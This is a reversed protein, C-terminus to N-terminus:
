GWIIARTQSKGQFVNKEGTTERTGTSDPPSGPTRRSSGPPTPELSRPDESDGASVPALDLGLRQM